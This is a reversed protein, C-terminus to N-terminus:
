SENRKSLVLLCRLRKQGFQAMSHFLSRVVPVQVYDTQTLHLDTDVDSDNIYVFEEDSGTIYVWHPAKNRNVRWTSILAIVPLGSNIIKDLQANDVDQVHLKISTKRIHSLFDEHVLEIVAKKEESRVSDIFPAESYNIYLSVDYGRNWASLALGHPSCGGHGSTMFITTAERWIQLEDTRSFQYDPSLSKMAMMLAAPGCTFDTTQQYYAQAVQVGDLQRHIRKEMRLADSGDEYYEKIRGIVRYRGKEYLKIAVTNHINVELRIFVCHRGIASQEAADLLYQALGKGQADPRIAISYMRALNTSARYLNLIYGLVKDGEVLVLLDHAGDRVFNQFSRRSLRDTEFCAQEIDILQDIDDQIASRILPKETM